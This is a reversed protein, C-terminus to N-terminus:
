WEQCVPCKGKLIKRRSIRRVADIVEYPNEVVAREMGKSEVEPCEAQVHDMLCQFDYPPYVKFEHWEGAGASLERELEDATMPERSSAIELNRALWKSLEWRRALTMTANDAYFVDEDVTGESNPNGTINDLYCHTTTLLALAIEAMYAFHEETLKAVLPDVDKTLQEELVRRAANFEKRRRKIFAVSRLPFEKGKMEDLIESDSRKDLLSYIFELEGASPEAAKGGKKKEPVKVKKRAM